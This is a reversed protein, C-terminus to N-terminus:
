MASLYTVNHDLGNLTTTVPVTIPLVAIVTCVHAMAFQYIVILEMGNHPILAHVLTQHLVIVMDVRYMVCPYIVHLETGYLITSVRATIEVATVM